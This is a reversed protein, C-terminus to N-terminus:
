AVRTGLIMERMTSRILGGGFSYITDRIQSQESRAQYKKNRDWVDTELEISTKKIKTDFIGRCCNIFLLKPKGRLNSCDRDNFLETVNNIDVINGEAGYIVVSGNFRTYGHAM